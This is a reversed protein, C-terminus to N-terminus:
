APRPLITYNWEGHFKDRKLRITAVEKDSVKVGKPYKAPDVEARVRLATKATKSWELEVHLGCFQALVPDLDTQVFLREADEDHQEVPGALHHRAVIPATEVPKERFHIATTDRLRGPPTLSEIVLRIL